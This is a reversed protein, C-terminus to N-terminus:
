KNAEVNLHDLGSQKLVPRDEVKQIVAKSNDGYVYDGISKAITAPIAVACAGAIGLVLAGVLPNFRYTRNQPSYNQEM